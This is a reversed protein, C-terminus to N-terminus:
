HDVGVMWNIGFRDTCMGFAESWFTKGLPMFVSGGQSLANFAREAEAKDGAELADFTKALEEGREGAKQEAQHNWWLWGGFGALGLLILAVLWRGYRSWFSTLKDQRLADDVERFFAENDQPTVAM